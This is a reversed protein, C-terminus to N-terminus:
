FRQLVCQLLRRGATIGAPTPGDNGRTGVNVRTANVHTTALPGSTAVHAVYGCDADVHAVIRYAAVEGKLDTCVSQHEDNTSYNVAREDLLHILEEYAANM